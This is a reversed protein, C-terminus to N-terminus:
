LWTPSPRLLMSIRHLLQIDKKQMIVVTVTVFLASTFLASLFNCICEVEYRLWWEVVMVCLAIEYGLVKCVLIGVFIKNIM